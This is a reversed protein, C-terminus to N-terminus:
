NMPLQKRYKVRGEGVKSKKKKIEQFTIRSVKQTLNRRIGKFETYYNKSTKGYTHQPM